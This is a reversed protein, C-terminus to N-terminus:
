SEHQKRSQFFKPHEPHERTWREAYFRVFNNNIRLRNGHADRDGVSQIALDHAFRCAAIIADASYHSFGASLLDDCHGCFKVWVMPNARDFELFAAELRGHNVPPAPAFCLEPQTM